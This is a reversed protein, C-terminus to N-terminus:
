NQRAKRPKYQPPPDETKNISQRIDVIESLIKNREQTCESSSKYANIAANLEDDTIDLEKKCLDVSEAVGRPSQRTFDIGIYDLKLAIDKTQEDWVSKDVAYKALARVDKKHNEITHKEAETKRQAEQQQFIVFFLPNDSTKQLVYLLCKDSMFQAQKEGICLGQRNAKEMSQKPSLGVKVVSFDDNFMFALTNAKEEEWSKPREGLVFYLTKKEKDYQRFDIRQTVKKEANEKVMTDVGFTVTSKTEIVSGDETKPLTKWTGFLACIAKERADKYNPTNSVNTPVPKAPESANVPANQQVTHKDSTYAWERATLAEKREDVSVPISVPVSAMVKSSVRESSKVPLPSTDINDSIKPADEAKKGCLAYFLGCVVVAGIIYPMVPTNPKQKAKRKSIPKKVAM